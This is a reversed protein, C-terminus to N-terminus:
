KSFGDHPEQPTNEEVIMLHIKGILTLLNKGAGLHENQRHFFYRGVNIPFICKIIKIPRTWSKATCNGTATQNYVKKVAMPMKLMPAVSPSLNSDYFFTPRGANDAQLHPTLPLTVMVVVAVVSV